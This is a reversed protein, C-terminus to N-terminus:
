GRIVYQSCGRRRWLRGNNSESSRWSYVIPMGGRLKGFTNVAFKTTGFAM